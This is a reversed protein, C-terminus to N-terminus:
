VNGWYGIPRGRIGSLREVPPWNNRGKSVALASLVWESGTLHEMINLVWNKERGPERRWQQDLWKLSKLRQEESGASGIERRKVVSLGGKGWEPAWWPCWGCCHRCPSHPPHWRNGKNVWPGLWSRQAQVSSYFGLMAKCASGRGFMPEALNSHPPMPGIELLAAGRGQDWCAKSVWDPM